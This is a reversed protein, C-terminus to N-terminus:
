EPIGVAIEGVSTEEVYSLGAARAFLDSDGMGLICTGLSMAEAALSMSQMLIGVDKLVLAYAISRYKWALRGHRAAFVVLVQPPRGPSGMARRADELLRDLDAASAPTPRLAHASPDYHHLGRALGEVRDAGVYVELEYLAGAGPFPRRASEFLDVRTTERVRATRFLLEGLAATSLPREAFARSSRRAEHVDTFTRDTVALRAIDPRPLPIPAAAPPKKLAPPQEIGDPGEGPYGVPYAHRGSRSRAHFLLDHFEWLALAPDAEEEGPAVLVGSAALFGMLRAAAEEPLGSAAAAEAPTRPSALAAVVAAARPDDLVVTAFARPTEVVAAGSERRLYAYRSCVLRDAKGAARPTFLGDAPAVLATAIKRGAEALTFAVAGARVLRPLVDGMDAARAGGRALRDLAARVAEADRRTTWRRGPWEVVVAGADDRVVAGPRLSLVLVDIM